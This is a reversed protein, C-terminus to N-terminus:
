LGQSFTATPNAYIASIWSLISTPMGFCKLTDFLFSWDVRDFAREANTSLLMLPTNLKKASAIINLTRITNDRAERSQFFGVQDLPSPHQM